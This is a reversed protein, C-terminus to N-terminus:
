PNLISKGSNNVIDNYAYLRASHGIDSSFLRVDFAHGTASTPTLVMNGSATIGTAYLILWGSAYDTGSVSSLSVPTGGITVSVDNKTWILLSGSTLSISGLNIPASFEMGSTSGDPSSAPTVVVTDPDLEELTVLNQILNSNKSFWMALNALARQNERESTLLVSPGPNSDTVKYHSVLEVINFESAAWDVIVRARNGKTHKDFTVIEGNQVDLAEASAAVANDMVISIDIEQGTRFGYADYGTTSAKNQDEPRIGISTEEHTIQNQEIEATDEGFEASGDIEHGTGAYDDDTWVQTMNSGDPGDYRGLERFTGTRTDFVVQRALGNEDICERGGVCPSPLPWYDGDYESPGEGQVAGGLGVRYCKDLSYVVVEETVTITGTSTEIYPGGCADRYATCTWTYTGPMLYTHEPDRESSTLGDGFEWFFRNSGDDDDVTFQVKFPAVGSAGSVSIVLGSSAPPTTSDVYDIDGDSVLVIYSPLGYTGM